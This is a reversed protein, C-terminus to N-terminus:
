EIDKIGRCFYVGAPPVNRPVFAFEVTEFRRRYFSQYLWPIETIQSFFGEAALLRRVSLFLKDQISKSFSPVPLGSVIHDVRDIGLKGLIMTLDAVDGVIVEFNPLDTFRESLLRGFDPDREIVVVRCVLPARKALERTIPGTGAGLEVVVNAQKWDIKRISAESLWRSSPAVSAIEVGHKLFKSLFLSHDNM